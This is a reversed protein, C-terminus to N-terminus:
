FTSLSIRKSAPFRSVLLSRVHKSADGPLRRSAGPKQANFCKETTTGCHEEQKNMVLPTFLLAWSSIGRGVLEAGQTKDPAAVPVAECAATEM